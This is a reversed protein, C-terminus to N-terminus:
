IDILWRYTRKPFTKLDEAWKKILNNENTNFKILEKYMNSILGKHSTDKAFM